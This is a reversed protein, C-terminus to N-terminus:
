RLKRGPARTTAEGSGATATHAASLRMIANEVTSSAVRYVSAPAVLGAPTMKPLTGQEFRDRPMASAHQPGADVAGARGDDLSHILPRSNESSARNSSALSACYKAPPESAMKRYPAM